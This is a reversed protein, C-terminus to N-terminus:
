HECKEQEKKAAADGSVPKKLLDLLAGASCGFSCWPRNVGCALILSVVAIAIAAIGAVTFRFASFPEINNPDLKVGLLLSVTVIVLIIYRVYRLNKNLVPSLKLKWPIIKNLLEQLSGFPCVFFCYFNRGTFIPVIVALACFVLIGVSASSKIGNVAWASILSMSFCSATFFGLYLISLAMLIYRLTPNQKCKTFCMFIGLIPIIIIGIEKWDFAKSKQSSKTAANPDIMSIRKRLTEKVSTSTMTAGSVTQVETKDVEKWHIGKWKEMFGSKLVKDVFAETEVNELLVVAVIKEDTDIGILVPTSGGYGSIDDAHPSSHVVSGVQKGSIDLVVVWEKSNEPSVLKEASPFIKKVHEMPISVQEGPKVQPAPPKHLTGITLVIVIISIVLLIHSISNKM